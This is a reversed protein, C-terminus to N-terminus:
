HTTLKLIFDMCPGPDFFSRHVSTHAGFRTHASMHTSTHARSHEWKKNNINKYLSTLYLTQIHAKLSPVRGWSNHVPWQALRPACHCPPFVTCIFLQSCLAPGIPSPKHTDIYSCLGLSGWSLSTQILSIWYSFLSKVCPYPRCMYSVPCRSRSIM